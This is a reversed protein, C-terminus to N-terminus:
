SRRLEASVYIRFSTLPIGSCNLCAVGKRREDRSVLLNTSAGLRFRGRAISCFMADPSPDAPRNELRKTSEYMISQTTIIHTSLRQCVKTRLEGCPLAMAATPAANEAMVGLLRGKLTASGLMEKGYTEFSFIDVPRSMMRPSTTGATTTKTMAINM